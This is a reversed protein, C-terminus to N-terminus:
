EWLRGWENSLDNHMRERDKIWWGAIWFLGKRCKILAMCDFGTLQRRNANHMRGDLYEGKEEMFRERRRRFLGRNANCSSYALAFAADIDEKFQMVKMGSM